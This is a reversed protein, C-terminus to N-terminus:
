SQVAYLDEYYDLICASCLNAREDGGPVRPSCKNIGCQYCIPQVLVGEGLMAVTAATRLSVNTVAYRKSDGFRVEYGSPMGVEMDGDHYYFDANVRDAWDLIATDLNIREPLEHMYNEYSSLHTILAIKM